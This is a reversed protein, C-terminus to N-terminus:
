STRVRAKWALFPREVFRYSLASVALSVAFVAGALAFAGVTWGHGLPWELEWLVFHFIPLHLLFFSYSVLGVYRLVPNTWLARTRLPALLVLLLVAAWGAGAATHWLNRFGGEVEPFGVFTVWRLLYGLAALVLLLAVDAGGRRFWRRADFARAIAAGHRDYLWAVLVGALFVPAREFLSCQLLIVGEISQMRWVGAQFTVLAVVYAVLVLVGLQRRRPSAILWGLFPLAVYFQVETALSWWPVSWPIIPTYTGAFSNLFFLYPVALRVDAPSRMAWVTAMAVVLYYAPLIRLARREFYRLVSPAKGGWVVALFPRSLLFGSLVFFLDVGVHGSHV